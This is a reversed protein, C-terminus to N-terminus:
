HNGSALIGVRSTHSNRELDIFHGGEVCGGHGAQKALEPLAAGQRRGHGVKAWLESLNDTPVRAGWVIPRM